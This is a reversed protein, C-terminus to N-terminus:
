IGLVPVTLVRPHSLNLWPLQACAPILTTAIRCVREHLEFWRLGALGQESVAVENLARCLAYTFVGCTLGAEGVFADWAGIEGEGITPRSAEYLVMFPKRQARLPVVAGKRAAAGLHLQRPSPSAAARGHPSSAAVLLLEATMAEDAEAALEAEEIADEDMFPLLEAVVSNRDMSPPKAYCPRLGTVGCHLCPPPARPAGNPEPVFTLASEQQLVSIRMAMWGHPPPPPHCRKRAPMGNILRHRQLRRRGQSSSAHAASASSSAPGTNDPYLGQDLVDLADPEFSADVLATISAGKLRCSDMVAQLEDYTIMRQDFDFDCPLLSKVIGGGEDGLGGGGGGGGSNVAVAPANTPAKLMVCGFGSFYFVCTVGPAAHAVLWQMAARINAATPVLDGDDQLEHMARIAAVGSASHDDDVDFLPRSSPSAARAMAQRSEELAAHHARAVHELAKAVSTVDNFSGGLPARQKVYACGILLACLTVGSRVAPQDAVRPRTPNSMSVPPVRGAARRDGDAVVVSVSSRRPSTMHLQLDINSLTGRRKPLATHQTIERARDANIGDLSFTAVFTQMSDVVNSCSNRRSMAPSANTSGALGLLGTGHYSLRRDAPSPNNSGAGFLSLRRHSADLCLSLRRDVFPSGSVAAAPPSGSAASNHGCEEREPEATMSMSSFLQLRQKSSSAGAPETLSFRHASRQAARASGEPSGSAAPVETVSADFSTKRPLWTQQPAREGAATSPLSVRRAGPSAGGGGGGGKRPSSAAPSATRNAHGVPQSYVLNWRTLAAGTMAPAKRVKVRESLAITCGFQASFYGALVRCPQPPAYVSAVGSLGGDAASQTSFELAVMALVRTADENFLVIHDQRRSPGGAVICYRVDTVDGTTSSDPVMLMVKFDISGDFAISPTASTNDDLTTAVPPLPGTELRLGSPLTSGPPLRVVCCQPAMPVARPAFFTAYRDLKETNAKADSLNAHTPAKLLGAARPSAAMVGNGNLELGGRPPSVSQRSPPNSISQRSPPGSGLSRRSGGRSVLSKAVISRRTGYSKALAERASTSINTQRHHVTAWDKPNGPVDGTANPLALTLLRRDDIPLNSDAGDSSLRSTRRQSGGAALTPEVTPSWAGETPQLGTASADDSGVGGLLAVGEPKFRDRHHHRHAVVTVHAESTCVRLFSQTEAMYRVAYRGPKLDDVQFAVLIEEAGRLFFVDVLVAAASDCMKPDDPALGLSRDHQLVGSEVGAINRDAVGGALTTGAGGGDASTTTNPSGLRYLAVVDRLQLKRHRGDVFSSDKEFNVSLTTISSPVVAAVALVAARPLVSAATAAITVLESLRWATMLRALRSCYYALRFKGSSAFRLTVLSTTVPLIVEHPAVGTVTPRRTTSMSDGAASTTASSGKREKLPDEAKALFSWTSWQGLGGGARGAASSIPWSVVVDPAGCAVMEAREDFAYLRDDPGLFGLADTMTFTVSRQDDVLADCAHFPSVEVRPVVVKLTTDSLAVTENGTFVRFGVDFIGESSPARCLVHGTAAARGTCRLVSGTFVDQESRGIPFFRVHDACSLSPALLAAAARAVNSHQHPQHSNAAMRGSATTSATSQSTGGPRMGMPRGSAHAAHTMSTAEDMSSGLAYAVRVLSGCFVQGPSHVVSVRNDNMMALRPADERRQTSATSATSVERNTLCASSASKTQSLGYRTTTTADDDAPAVDFEVSSALLSPVGAPPTWMLRVHYGKPGATTSARGLAESVSSLTGVSAMSPLQGMSKHGGGGFRRSVFPSSSPSGGAPDSPYAPGAPALFHAVTPLAQPPRHPAGSALAGSTEESRAPVLPASSPCDVAHTFAFSMVAHVGTTFGTNGAADSKCVMLALSELSQQLPSRRSPPLTGHLPDSAGGLQSQVLDLLQGPHSLLAVLHAHPPLIQGHVVRRGGAARLLDRVEAIVTVPDVTRDLRSNVVMREIDLLTNALCRTGISTRPVPSSHSTHPLLSSGGADCPTRSPSPPSRPKPGGSSRTVVTFDNPDDILTPMEGEEDDDGASAAMASLFMWLEVMQSMSTGAAPGATANFVASADSALLGAAGGVSMSEDAVVRLPASLIRKFTSCDYLAVLHGGVQPPAIVSVTGSRLKEPDQHHSRGTDETIHSRDSKVDAAALHLLMALSTRSLLTGSSTVIRIEDNATPYYDIDTSLSWTVDVREGRVVVPRAAAIFSGNRWPAFSDSFAM